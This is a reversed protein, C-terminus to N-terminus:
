LESISLHGMCEVSYLDSVRNVPYPCDVPRQAVEVAVMGPPSCRIVGVQDQRLFYCEHVRDLSCEHILHQSADLRENVGPINVVDNGIMGFHVM